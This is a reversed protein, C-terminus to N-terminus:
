DIIIKQTEKKDQQIVTLFYVGKSFAKTDISVNNIPQYYQSYVKKGLMNTIEIEFFQTPLETLSVTIQSTAPNPYITLNQKKSAENVGLMTGTANKVIYNYFVAFGKTPTVFHMSKIPEGNTVQVDSLSNIKTRMSICPSGNLYCEYPAGWVIEESTAFLEIIHFNYSCIYTYNEGGDITKYLNDSCKRFGINEDLFYFADSVGDLSTDLCGIYSWTIGGNVTKILGNICTGFGINEDIFQINQSCQTANVTFITLGGDVTKKLVNGISFYCINENISSLGIVQTPNLEQIQSMIIWSDGGNITKVLVANFNNVDIGIAYGVNISPFQVKKLNYNTGSDKQDWTIGGDTTKLITGNEGVAVVIDETVCYVDNLMEPSNTNIAYWQAFFPLSFFICLYTILKKM